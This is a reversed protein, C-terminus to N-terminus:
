WNVWEKNDTPEEFSAPPPVIFWSAFENYRPVGRERDRIIEITALNSLSVM